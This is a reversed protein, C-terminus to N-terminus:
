YTYNIKSISRFFPLPDNWSFIAYIKKGKYSQIWQGFSLNHKKIEHFASPIDHLMYVWKVQNKDLYLNDFNQGLADLYVMHPLNIGHKLLFGIQMWCRPNIEILKLEGNREDIKFEADIIGHFKIKKILPTIIKELEPKDYKEIFVGNGSTPPWERIRRYVFAGNPTFSKDYYSNFGYMFRANGPIIEQIMMNLNKSIANDYNELLQKNSKALFFKKNFARRFYESNAPKLICPYKIEKSINKVDTKDIPIYTKPYNIGQKELTSYFKQKNILIETINYDAMPIHYYKKLKNKNKLIILAESDGIPFLVGKQNLMSGFRILFEIYETKNITLDPCLVGTCYKSLFGGNQPNSDFWFVPINQTGLGRTTGLGTTIYRGLVLAIPKNIKKIKKEIKKLNQRM